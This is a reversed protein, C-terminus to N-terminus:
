NQMVRKLESELKTKYRTDILNINKKLTNVEVENDYYSVSTWYKSEVDSTINESLLYAETVTSATNSEKGTITQGTVNSTTMGTVHHVIISTDSVNVVYAYVSSSVSIRENFKFGTPDTKLELIRNTNVILDEKKRQYNVVTMNSDLIPRWYKKEVASLATYAGITISSDELLEWNTRYFILKEQALQISGYKDTIYRDFNEQDLGLDYYPDVVDNAFYILWDAFPDDYYSNALVDPRSISDKITYPYYISMDKKTEPTFKARALLNKAQQGNYFITPFDKFFATM